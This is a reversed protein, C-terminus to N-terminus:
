DSSQATKQLLSLALLLYELRMEGGGAPPFQQRCMEWIRSEVTGDPMATLHALLRSLQRAGGDLDGAQLAQIAAHWANGAPPPCDRCGAVLPGAQRLVAACAAGPEHRAARWLRIFRRDCGAIRAVALATENRLPIAALRGLLELIEPLTEAIRLSGLATAYAVRIADHQERRMADMIASASARDGLNALSRAARSRLLAYESHLTERLAPIARRDGLRGLAWGAAVSLDPEQSRLVGVLADSLPPSAPLRAIALIAEYRVNFSPDQLSALLEDASATNKARGMRETTSVREDENWAFQYRLISGFALLPNGQILLSLFKGTPLAGASRLGRGIAAAAAFLGASLLLVPTYPTVTLWRWQLQLPTYADLLYGALFPGAATSIGAISYHIAYYGAGAQAPVADAYLYRTMGVLYGQIAMGYFGYIAGLALALLRFHAPLICLALPFVLVMLIGTIAVPRGGFRDASWGWFLSAILVGGRLAMDMTMIRAPPLGFRSQLYLPLFPFVGCALVFLGNSLLFRRFNSDRLPILLDELLPPSRAAAPAPGGGPIYRLCWISVLSFAIGALILWQYGAIGPNRRLVLSAALSTCMATVGAIIGNVAYVKGRIRDPLFQKEWPLYGTEAVARCFAFGAIIAALAPFIQAPALWPSAWPILLLGAIIIVRAMTMGMFVHKPGRRVVLGTVLLALLTFVHPIALLLGIQTKNLGLAHMFLPFVPGFITLLVFVMNSSQFTYYWPLARMKDAHSPNAPAPFAHDM